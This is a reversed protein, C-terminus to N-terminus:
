DFLWDFRKKYNLFSNYATKFRNLYFPIHKVAPLRDIAHYAQTYFLFLSGQIMPIIVFNCLNHEFLFLVKIWKVYCEDIDSIECIFLNHVCDQLIVASWRFQPSSDYFVRELVFMIWRLFSVLGITLPKKSCFRMACANGLINEQEEGKKKRRM